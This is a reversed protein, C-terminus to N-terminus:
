NPRGGERKRREDELRKRAAEARKQLEAQLKEQQARFVEPDTPAGDYARPFSRGDQGSFCVEKADPEQGKFCYKVGPSIIIQSPGPAQPPPAQGQTLVPAIIVAAIATMVSTGPFQPRARVAFNWSKMPIRRKSAMSVILPHVCDEL